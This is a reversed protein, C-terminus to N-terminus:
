TAVELGRGRLLDAARCLDEPRSAPTDKLEYVRGLRPYKDRATAHYPLLQLRPVRPQALLFDALANLNERDDTHGPILPTRVLVQAGSELLLTLNELIRENGRGTALEHRASDMIKLDYLILDAERGAALLDECRVLGCTDVATHRGAQRLRALCGMVFPAHAATLPEGGSFTIGGGSADHYPADRELEALLEEHGYQRGALRRAETPCEQACRGCAICEGSAKEQRPNVQGAPLRLPGALGAQCVPACLGCAVCRSEQLMSEPTARMSEPNHCWLCRLPCGKLFVTTRIGPGDHLSFRQINFVVAATM